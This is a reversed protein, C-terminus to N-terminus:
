IRRVFCYREDHISPLQLQHDAAYQKQYRMLLDKASYMSTGDPDGYLRILQEFSPLAQHYTDDMRELLAITEDFGMQEFQDINDPRLTVTLVRRTPHPLQSAHVWEREPRFRERNFCAKVQPSLQEYDDATLRVPDLLCGRGEAHPVFCLIRQLPYGALQRFLDDAQLVNEHSLPISAVAPMGARNAAALTNLLLQYDGKRAAFRDHYEQTGYFTLDILQIGNEKLQTLLELLEAESRHRMGNFQLFEGTACGLSQCFRVARLLDPHEMSYGFGFLFSLEPRHMKLYDYFAKAYHESRAYDVGTTKGDYSLLCYRCRSECPVCLNMVNVSTTQM